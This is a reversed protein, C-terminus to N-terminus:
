IIAFHLNLSFDNADETTSRSLTYGTVYNSM